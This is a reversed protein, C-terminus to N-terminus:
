PLQLILYELQNQFEVRTQCKLSYRAFKLKRDGTKSVSLIQKLITKM